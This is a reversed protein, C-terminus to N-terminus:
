CIGAWYITSYRVIDLVIPKAAKFLGLNSM